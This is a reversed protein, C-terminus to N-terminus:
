LYNKYEARELMGYTFQYYKIGNFQTMNSKTLDREYGAGFTHRGQPIMSGGNVEIVALISPVYYDYRFKRLTEIVDKMPM